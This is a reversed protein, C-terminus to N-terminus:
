RGHGVAGAEVLVSTDGFRYAAQDEIRGPGDEYHKSSPDSSREPSAQGGRKANDGLEPTAKTLKNLQRLIAEVKKKLHLIETRSLTSKKSISDDSRRIYDETGLPDGYGPEVKQPRRVANMMNTGMNPSSPMRIGRGSQVPNGLVIGRTGTQSIGTGGAGYHHTFQRPQSGRARYMRNQAKKREWAVPDRLRLPIRRDRTSGINRLALSRANPAFSQRSSYLDLERARRGSQRKSQSKPQRGGTAKIRGGVKKSRRGRGRRRRKAKSKRKEQESEEDEEYKRGKYKRRAKTISWADEFSDDDSLTIARVNGRSPHGYTVNPTTSRVTGRNAGAALSLGNAGLDVGLRSELLKNEQDMMPSREMAEDMKEPKVSIHQLGPMIERLAKDRRKEPNTQDRSEGDEPTTRTHHALGEANENPNADLDGYNGMERPKHGGMFEAVRPKWGQLDNRPNAVGTM